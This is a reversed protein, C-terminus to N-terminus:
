RCGYPRCCFFFCHTVQNRFFFYKLFNALKWNKQQFKFLNRTFVKIQTRLSRLTAKMAFSEFFVDIMFILPNYRLATNRLWRNLAGTGTHLFFKGTRPFIDYIQYIHFVNVFKNKINLFKFKCIVIM